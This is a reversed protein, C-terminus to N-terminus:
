QHSATSKAILSRENKILKHNSKGISNDVVIFFYFLLAFDIPTDPTVIFNGQLIVNYDNKLLRIYGTQMKRKEHKM